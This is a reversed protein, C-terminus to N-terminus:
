VTEERASDGTRCQRKEQVTGQGARERRKCQGMDQVTEERASDGTRCKRKEQVTGQGVSDRRKCQGMDQLQESTEEDISLRHAPHSPVCSPSSRDVEWTAYLNMHVPRNSTIAVPKSPQPSPCPAGGSRPLGGGRESM